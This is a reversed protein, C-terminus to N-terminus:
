RLLDYLNIDEGNLRCAIYLVALMTRFNPEYPEYLKFKTVIDCTVERELNPNFKETWPPPKPRKEAEETTSSRQIKRKKVPREKSADKENTDPCSSMSVRRNLTERIFKCNELAIEYAQDDNDDFNPIPFQFNSFQGNSPIESSMFNIDKGSAPVRPSSVQPEEDNNNEEEDSDESYVNKNKM